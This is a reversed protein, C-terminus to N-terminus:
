KEKQNTHEVLNEAVLRIELYIGSLEGSIQAIKKPEGRNIAYDLDRLLERTNSNLNAIKLNALEIKHKTM